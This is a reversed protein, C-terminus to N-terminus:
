FNMWNRSSRLRRTWALLFSRCISTNLSRARRTAGAIRPRRGNSILSRPPALWGAKAAARVGATKGGSEAGPTAGGGGAPAGAEAYADLTRVVQALYAVAKPMEATLFGHLQEVEKLLPASRNELERDWKKLRALKEEADRVTRQARNVTMQLLSTTEQFDSLRATFLEQQAQELKKSRVRRENEWFRRQDNELWLRTRTMESSIEELAPRAQSTFVILAARFLEIAEVSTIKAQTAM